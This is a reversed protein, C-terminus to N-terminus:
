LRDKVRSKSEARRAAKAGPYRLSQRSNWTLAPREVGFWSMWAFLATIAASVVAFALVGASALGATALIQQVPFAFIYLGYCLDNRLRQKPNKILSGVVICVYSLPFAGVLRYDPLWMSRFLM